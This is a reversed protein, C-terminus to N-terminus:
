KKNEEEIYDFLSQQKQGREFAELYKVGDRFYEPNLESAIGFRGMKIAVNPVTMIGGFPDFVVDGSNSYRNIIRKVIDIQLPCIHNNQCRQTQNNNLTLMRNVDTWVDPDLSEPAISMFTSPLKGRDDIQEGIHVHEDYDYINEASSKKFASVFDLTKMQALEDPCLMRDGSSRWFAHADVQWRARSYEEKTKQIPEDAYGKSRDSQPKRFILIYEPSGVGMKSGDKCQESWGLRYTQNNERVVDTVITIMGQYDFGHKISHFICEAHFPSVTPAGKGTVNGFLIRDKVHCAYIRGPKLIRLLEPTLYDMQNWFHENNQTHGFDNYSPTYEYHNAFPISTHILGVSNDEIRRSEDVCDNNVVRFNKGSIELRNVGITRRLESIRQANSLGYKKIIDTMKSVM